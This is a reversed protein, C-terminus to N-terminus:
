IIKKNKSRPDKVLNGSHYIGKIARDRWIGPADYFKQKTDITSILVGPKNNTLEGAVTGDPNLFFSPWCSAPKSTNNASIWFSNNAAYAQLTPKVIVGWINFKRLAKPDRAGNYFSHFVVRVDRKYLERYLEQFRFEYCILVSCRIGKITFTVFGSGPSYNKLDGSDNTGTCFRKDYRDVLKGRNNIIYISNHPKHNGTLQHNGGVLAWIKNKGAAEMIEKLCSKYLDWDFNDFSEFDADAYGGLCTESFHAIDAGGKKAKKMQDIIYKTSKKIDKSVPFQCTAIRLVAM